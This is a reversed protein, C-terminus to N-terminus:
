YEGPTESLSAKVSIMDRDCEGCGGHSSGRGLQKIVLCNKNAAAGGVGLPRRCKAEVKTWFSM